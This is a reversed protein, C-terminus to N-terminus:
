SNPEIGLRSTMRYHWVLFPVYSLSEMFVLCLDTSAGEVIEERSFCGCLM